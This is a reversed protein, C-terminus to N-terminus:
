LLVRHHTYIIISTPQARELKNNWDVTNYTPM